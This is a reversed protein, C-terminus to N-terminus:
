IRQPGKGLKHSVHCMIAESSLAASVKLMLHCVAPLVIFENERGLNVIFYFKLGSKPLFIIECKYRLMFNWIDGFFRLGLKKEMMRVLSSSNWTICLTVRWELAQRLMGASVLWVFLKIQSFLCAKIKQAYLIQEFDWLLPSYQFSYFFSVLISSCLLLGGWSKLHLDECKMNVM